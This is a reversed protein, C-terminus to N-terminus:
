STYLKLCKQRPVILFHHMGYAKKQMEQSLSKINAVQIMEGPDYKRNDTVLRIENPRVDVDVNSGQLTVNLKGSSTLKNLIGIYWVDRHDLSLLVRGGIGVQALGM